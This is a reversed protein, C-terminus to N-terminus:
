KKTIVHKILALVAIWFSGPKEQAETSRTAGEPLKVLPPEPTDMPVPAVPPAVTEVPEQPGGILRSGKLVELFKGHYAAIEDDKDTGNIIRRAGKPDDKTGNFYQNLRKGTFWGELMGVFMVKVAIAPQMALEPHKVLSIGLNFLENLRKTAKIYNTEHTLQVYGRGFWGSRWYPTKVSGLRGAAWAQDLRSITQADTKGYAERIPQMTYGTEHWTTALCYALYRSDGNPYELEWADLIFNFGNVQEQDLARFAKKVGAFFTKRDYHM